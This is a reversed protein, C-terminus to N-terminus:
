RIVLPLYISLPGKYITYYYRGWFVKNQIVGHVKRQIFDHNTPGGLMGFVANNYILQNLQKYIGDRATFDMATVGQDLLQQFQTKLASPMHTRSAYIGTLYPVYWNHPDHIDELWGGTFIPIVGANQDAQYDEPSVEVVDLVFKPNVQSLNVALIEAVIQRSISGQNYLIQVHFGTNWLSAGGPSTLMSAKFEATAKALDFTYHDAALDYGPMGVLALTTPQVSSNGFVESNFINWDFSYNFARRIHVDAFFDPPIGNGDLQGSGIYPNGGAPVTINYNFLMENQSIGPRGTYRRLSKAPDIVSCDYQTISANWICDEGVLSDAMAIYGTSLSAQDAAGNQLITFRTAEDPIILFTVQDLQAPKRWYNDNRTLVVETGPTIHNLKFPGTGNTMATLPGEGPNTAYWNQWTYCSGDWTGQAISWNRDLISGWTSSITALFPAWPQALHMTVTGATNDAVIADKVKNCAALRDNANWALLAARNDLLSGSPDVLLSIDNIGIGFFPEALLVQPTGSGGQLLDRQFSYAVDAPTLTDGNHFKVGPRIHFIWTLGDVSHGYSDALMPVFTDASAGDFFVLTEYVNQIVGNSVGDYTLVPDFTYPDYSIAQVFTHADPTSYIDNLSQHATTGAIEPLVNRSGSTFGTTSIALILLWAALRRLYGVQTSSVRSQYM